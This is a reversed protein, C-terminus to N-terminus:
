TALCLRNNGLSMAPLAKPLTAFGLKGKVLEADEGDHEEISQQLKPQSVTNRLRRLEEASYVRRNSEPATM